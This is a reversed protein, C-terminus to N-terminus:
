EATPGDAETIVWIKVGTKSHYASLIRLESGIAYENDAKDHEELDFISDGSAAMAELAGPTALLRGLSFKVRASARV